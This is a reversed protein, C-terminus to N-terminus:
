HSLSWSMSTAIDCLLKWEGTLGDLEVESLGVGYAFYHFPKGHGRARDYGIDPTAYFGAAAM